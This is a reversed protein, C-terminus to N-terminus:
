ARRKLKRASPGPPPRGGNAGGPIRRGPASVPEGSNWEWGVSPGPWRGPSVNNTIANCCIVLVPRRSVANADRATSQVGQAPVAAQPKESLGALDDAALVRGDDLVGVPALLADGGAVVLDGDVGVVVIQRGLLLGRVVDVVRRIGQQPTPGAAPPAGDFDDKRALCCDLRVISEV